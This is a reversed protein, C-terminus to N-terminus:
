AATDDSFPSEVSNNEDNSSTTMWSDSNDIYQEGQQGLMHTAANNKLERSLEEEDYSTYVLHLYSKDVKLKSADVGTKNNSGSSTSPVM